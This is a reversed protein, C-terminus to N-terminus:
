DKFVKALSNATLLRKLYRDIAEPTAAQPGFVPWGGPWGGV